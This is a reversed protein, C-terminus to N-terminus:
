PEPNRVSESDATPQVPRRGRREHHMMLLTVVNLSTGDQDSVVAPHGCFPCYATKGSDTWGKILEPVFVQLCNCCGCVRSKELIGRKDSPMAFSASSASMDFSSSITAYRKMWEEIRNLGDLIEIERLERKSARVPQGAVYLGGLGFALVIVTVVIVDMM